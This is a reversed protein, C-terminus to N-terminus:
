QLKKRLAACPTEVFRFIAESLLICLPLCVAIMVPARLAPYWAHAVELVTHHVLYLSFSLGGIRRVLKANLLRFVGWDAHRIAVIFIPYLALGQLTYRISERFQESRILFAALLGMLGAPFAVWRMYPALPRGGTDLVPNKWVALACGFLMSDARTDTGLYTRDEPVHFHFVLVCRWVMVVACLAWLAFAMNRGRVGGKHLAVFLMPFLLYFHEEIALSWYVGTGKGTGGWGEFATWMNNFHLFQSAVPWAELEGPLVHLGTLLTVVGLVLYFPPLIRLARRAYFLRFSVQGTREMERRMLTTILFGSLFFFVTVGFGGPIASVGAHAVFVILFSIARLGDLSPIHLAAGKHQDVNTSQGVAPNEHAPYATDLL